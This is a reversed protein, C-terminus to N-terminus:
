PNEGEWECVFGGRSNGFNELGDLRSDNWVWGEGEQRLLMLYHEQGKTNNPEDAGWEAYSFKEGTVWQFGNAANRNNAGLWVADMKADEILEVIERSEEASTVTALHGGRAECWIRADEWNLGRLIVEYRHVVSTAGTQETLEAVAAPPAEGALGQRSLRGVGFGAAALALALCVGAAAYLARCRPAELARLMERASAFRRRPNPECARMVASRLYRTRCSVRPLRVGKLRAALTNRVDAYASDANTMPLFNGNLLQYLVVGLSYLDAAAGYRQGAAVEPAMYAETGVVGGVADGDQRTAAGFDGLQWVGEGTRYINGPKVDRHLIGREHAFCLAACLQRALSLVESEALLEGERMRDSLCELREMRLLVDCAVLRNEGDYVPLVSDDLIKVANGCDTMRLQLRREEEARHLRADDGTPVRTWKLVCQREDAGAARTLVCVRTSNAAYLTEGLYWQGWIPERLANQGMCIM